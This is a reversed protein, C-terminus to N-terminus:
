GTGLAVDWEAAGDPEAATRAGPERGARRDLWADLDDRLWAIRRNTLRVPPVEKMVHVRFSAESLSVYAAALPQALARPWGPLAPDPM